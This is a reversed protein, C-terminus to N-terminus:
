DNLKRQVPKINNLRFRVAIDLMGFFGKILDIWKVKSKGQNREVYQTPVEFVQFRSAILTALIELLYIPSTYRPKSQLIHEAAKRSYFRFSNSYDRIRNDFLLRALASYFLSILRRSLTRGIVRSTYMYKSAIVVDVEFLGICKAGKILEEPRHAGDADIEAIVEHPTNELLWKLGCLSAGGRQCGASTKTRQILHIQPYEVMLTQIIALTQDRSGDDVICITYHIGELESIVRGILLKINQEENFTPVIVGISLLESKM